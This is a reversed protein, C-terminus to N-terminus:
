VKRLATLAAEYDPEQTVEPVIQSYRVKGDKDLIFISRTLLHLEKILVGFAKGFKGGQYDSLTKIKNSGTNLCWRKQAFPLDMSVTLIMIGEGLKAAEENFRKTQIDCVPTDLSPVVSILVTKGKLKSIKVQSLDQATLTVDPAKQGIRLSKGELTLPGGQFTVTRKKTTM